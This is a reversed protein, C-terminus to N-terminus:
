HIISPDDELLHASLTWCLIKEKGRKEQRTADSVRLTVILSRQPIPRGVADGGAGLWSPACHARYERAGVQPAGPDLVSEISASDSDARLIM